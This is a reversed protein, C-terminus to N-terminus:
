RPRWKSRDDGPRFAARWVASGASPCRAQRSRPWDEPVERRAGHHRKPLLEVEKEDSWIWIKPLGEGPHERASSM